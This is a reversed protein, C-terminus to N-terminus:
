NEEIWHIIEESLPSTKSPFVSVLKGSSDILYKQFNWKVFSDMVQNKDKQTLFQYLPHMENGTVIIKSMMPFTVGYNKKCFAAISDNSGPDQKGFDNCPFGLIVFNNGQYRQYLDELDKFQPTYGCESATNVIMVKKGKLTALDLTDGTITLVKYDYISQSFCPLSAGLMLFILMFKM